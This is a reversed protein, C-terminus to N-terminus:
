PQRIMNPYQCPNRTAAASIHHKDLAACRSTHDGSSRVITTSTKMATAHPLPMPMRPRQPLDERGSSADTQTGAEDPQELDWPGHTLMAAEDPLMLFMSFSRTMRVIMGPVHSRRSNRTGLSPADQRPIGLFHRPRGLTGWSM